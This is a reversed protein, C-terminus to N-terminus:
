PRPSAASIRVVQADHRPRESTQESGAGPNLRDAVYLTSRSLRRWLRPPGYSAFGEVNSNWLDGLSTASDTLIFVREVERSTVLAPPSMGKQRLYYYTAPTYRAMLGCRQTGHARCAEVVAEVDVLVNPESSLYRRAGVTALSGIAALVVATTAATSLVWRTTTTGPRRILSHFGHLACTLAIPLLFIWLRPRLPAQALWVIAPSLVFLILFVIRPATATRITSIAFAAIGILLVLQWVLNSDRVWVRGTALLMAPFSETQRGLIDYAWGMTERIRAPGDTVLVPLYFLLTLLGCVAGATLLGRILLTREDPGRPRKLAVVLWGLGLGAIPLAMVPVTYTGLAGLVGWASWLWRRDPKNLIHLTCTAQLTALLALWSYGRANTSYEILASSACVALAALLTVIHCRFASWALWATAPILLVGALFAPARLAPPSTGLIESTARVLLSHLIHNNPEYHSAIHTPSRSSFKLFNYSEDYRMPHNLFQARVGAGVVTLAIVAALTFRRGPSFRSASVPTNLDLTTM